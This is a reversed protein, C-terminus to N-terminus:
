HLYTHHSCVTAKDEIRMMFEKCTCQLYSLETWLQYAVSNQTFSIKTHWQAPVLYDTGWSVYKHDHFIHRSSLQKVVNNFM